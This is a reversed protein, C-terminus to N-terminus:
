MNMSVTQVNQWIAQDQLIKQGALKRKQRVEHARRHEEKEVDIKMLTWYGRLVDKNTWIKERM